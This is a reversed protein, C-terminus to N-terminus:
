FLCRMAILRSAEIMLFASTESKSVVEKIMGIPVDIAGKERWKVDSILIHAMGDHWVMRGFGGTPMIRNKGRWEM